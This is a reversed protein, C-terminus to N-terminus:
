LFLSKRKFYFIPAYPVSRKFPLPDLTVNPIVYIFGCITICSFDGCELGVMSNNAKM